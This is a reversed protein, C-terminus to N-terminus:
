KYLFGSVIEKINIYIPFNYKNELIPFTENYYALNLNYKREFNVIYSM